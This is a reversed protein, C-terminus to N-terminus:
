TGLAVGGSSEDMIKKLKKKAVPDNPKYYLYTELDNRASIIDGMSHHIEFRKKYADAYDPYLEIAKSYDALAVGPHGLALHAEGRCIYAAAFDAKLEIARTVSEIAYDYNEKKMYARALNYHAVAFKPFLKTAELFHEIAMETEGEQMKINGLTNASTALKVEEMRAGSFSIGCSPCREYSESVPTNCNFCKDSM